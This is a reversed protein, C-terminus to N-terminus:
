RRRSSLNSVQIEYKSRNTNELISVSNDEGQRLTIERPSANGIFGDPTFRIRPVNGIGPVIQNLQAAPVSVSPTQAEITIGSKLDFRMARADANAYYGAQEQLGYAGRQTDIWLVMPIGESIARNQGFRALSLFRRAESDLDRGRFFNKLSPLALAFVITLVAMVLILEIL